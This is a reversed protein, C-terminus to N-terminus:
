FDYPGAAMVEDPLWTEHIHRWRLTDDEAFLVTAIRGNDAPVSARANRQWEEYTALVYGGFRGRVAVNRICVRFEPNTGYGDRIMSVLDELGYLRGAPPIFVLEPAFRVSCQPEFSEGPLEGRFWGYFFHHLDEVEQRVRDEISVGM